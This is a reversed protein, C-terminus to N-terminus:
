KKATLGRARLLAAMSPDRGRYARYTAAPDVTDGISFIHKHLRAAVARDFPGGAETFAEYADAGLMESWLYGYFGASYDDGGFAHRFHTTRHMAIPEGPVDLAKLTTREFADPDTVQDGALYLKLDLIASAANLVTAIGQQFTAARQIKAVLEKPMPAGTKHHRAFRDLVASTELWREFVQSPFEIFERTVNIGALTPYSANSSLGHLAHGFEHFIVKATDWTLLLPEGPKGKTVNAVSTVIPLVEDQFREQPRLESMWAGSRKNPRALPDFYYLGVVKGTQKQKVEWVSVDPHYVEVDAAPAFTYGFLEGAVWFMGDRVHDLQLYPMIESEDLDYKAARVKEGYYDYDWPQLKWRPVGATAAEADALQQMAALEERMRAVAPKWLDTILALAREPTKAMTDDLRVHAHTAYGLLKAREARLKLIEVVGKNNDRADGHDGRDRLRKWLQERLDRRSSYRLFPTGMWSSAIAWKGQQGRAAALQAAGARESEPLGALDAERELILAHSEEDAIVNQTFTATLTALRQNIESLRQKTAADLKAGARVYSSHVRALLRQQEPPLQVRQATANYVADIRQFLRENQAVQDAAAALKPAIERELQQFAPTSMAGAWAEYILTLHRLWRGASELRAITNDFTPPAPDDVIKAILRQRDAIAAEIAPKWHADKVRAFPPVGGYPGIWEALLPNDASPAAPSAASGATPASKTATPKDAACAACALHACVLSRLWYTNRMSLLVVGPSPM